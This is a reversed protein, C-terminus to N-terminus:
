AVRVAARRPHAHRSAHPRWAAPPTTALLQVLTTLGRAAGAAEIGCVVIRDAGITLSYGENQTIEGLPSIGIPAPLAALDAGGGLEIRIYPAGGTTAGRATQVVELRLGTRRVVEHRFREVIPALPAETSEVNASPGFRLQGTDLAVDRPAPIVKIM